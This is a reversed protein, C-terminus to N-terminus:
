KVAEALLEKGLEATIPDSYCPLSSDWAEECLFKAWRYSWWNKASLLERVETTLAMSRQQLFIGAQTRILGANQELAEAFRSDQRWDVLDQGLRAEGVRWGDGELPLASLAQLERSVVLQPAQRRMAELRPRTAHDGLLAPSNASDVGKLAEDLTEMAQLGQGSDMAVHAQAEVALLERKKNVADRLRHLEFLQASPGVATVM